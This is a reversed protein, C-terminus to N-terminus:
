KAEKEKQKREQRKDYGKAYIEYVKVFHYDIVMLCLFLGVVLLSLVLISTSNDEDNFVMILTVTLTTFMVAVWFLWFTCERIRAYM